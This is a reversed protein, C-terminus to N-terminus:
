EVYHCKKKQSAVFDVFKVTVFVRGTELFPCKLCQESRQNHAQLTGASIYICPTRLGLPRSKIPNNFLQTNM